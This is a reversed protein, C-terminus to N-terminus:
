FYKLLMLSVELHHTLGVLVEAEVLVVLKIMVQDVVVAVLLAPLVQHLDLIVLM